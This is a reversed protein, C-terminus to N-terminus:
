GSPWHAPKLMLWRNACMIQEMQGMSLFKEPVVVRLWHQGPFLTICHYKVNGFDGLNLKNPKVAYWGKYTM